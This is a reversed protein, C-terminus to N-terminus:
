DTLGAGSVSGASDFSIVLEYPWPESGAPDMSHGMDVIYIYLSDAKRDAPGLLQSVQDRTMGSLTDGALLDRSMAGRTRRDGDKWGASEFEVPRAPMGSDTFDPGGLFFWAAGAMLLAILALLINRAM